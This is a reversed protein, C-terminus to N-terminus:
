PQRLDYFVALLPKDHDLVRHRCSKSPQGFKIWCYGKIQKIESLQFCPALCAAHLLLVLLASCALGVHVKSHGM